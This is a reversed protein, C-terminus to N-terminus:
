PLLLLIQNLFGEKGGGWLRHPAEAGTLFPAEEQPLLPM